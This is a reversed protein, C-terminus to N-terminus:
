DPLGIQGLGRRAEPFDPRWELARSWERSAKEWQGQSFYAVGLNYYVTAFDPRLTQARRYSEVAVNIHAGAHM